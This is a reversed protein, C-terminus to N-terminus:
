VKPFTLEPGAASKSHVITLRGRFSVTNKLM